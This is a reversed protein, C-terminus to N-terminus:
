ELHDHRPEKGRNLAHPRSRHRHQNSRDKREREDMAAQELAARALGEFDIPNRRETRVRVNYQRPPRGRRRKM